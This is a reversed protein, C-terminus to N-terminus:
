EPAKDVKPVAKQFENAFWEASKAQSLDLEFDPVSAPELKGLFEAIERKALGLGDLETAALSGARAAVGGPQKDLGEAMEAEGGTEDGAVQDLELGVDIRDIARLARFLVEGVQVGPGFDIKRTCPPDPEVDGRAHQGRLHVNRDGGRRM